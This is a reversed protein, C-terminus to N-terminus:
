VAPYAVFFKSKLNTVYFSAGDSDVCISADNPYERVAKRIDGVTAIGELITIRGFVKVADESDPLHGYVREFFDKRM